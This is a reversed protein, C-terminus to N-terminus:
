RRKLTMFFPLAILMMLGSLLFPAGPMYIAANESAFMQFVWTLVLPAVVASISGMSAIVGQLMGQRDEDVMNSMMGTVTPPTIDGLLALPMLAFVLWEVRAFGYATFGLVACITALILTRYEGLRAILIRMLGGQTAALGLGYVTLSVGIVAVSWDFSERLWFVWLTPYVMNAFEYIFLCLLPVLLGPLRLADLIATFPNLGRWTMPRRKEVALSEPLVFIGFVVAVGALGAALWFPASLSWTAAVGGIMPGIAFGLGYAAGIMGFNAARTEKTSVDALYATATVYTAGAIGALIRGILLVWYTTALAMIIYDVVLTALAAILVPRRGIADSLAGIAPSFVFLMAAYSAMLVGGLFAGDATSTAGVREMLDPMIPFVLGIGIGDFALTAM